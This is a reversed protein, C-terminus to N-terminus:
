NAYHLTILIMVPVHGVHWTMWTFEALLTHWGLLMLFTCQQYGSRHLYHESKTGPESNSHACNAVSVQHPIFQALGSCKCRFYPGQRDMLCQFGTILGIGTFEITVNNRGVTVRGNIGVVICFRSDGRVRLKNRIVARENRVPDLVM